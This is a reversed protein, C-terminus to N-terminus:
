SSAYSHSSYQIVTMKMGDNAWPSLDLCKSGEMKLIQSCRKRENRTGPPYPTTLSDRPSDPFRFAQPQVAMTDENNSTSCIYTAMSTAQISEIQAPTLVPVPPKNPDFVNVNPNLYFFRDGDRFHIMQLAIIYTFTPGLQGGDRKDSPLATELAREALGGVWIDVRAFTNFGYIKFLLYFDNPVMLPYPIPLGKSKLFNLAQSLMVLYGPLGHDRGRQINLSALDFGPGSPKGEKDVQEFLHNNLEESIFRDIQQSNRALLGRFYNDYSADEEYTSFYRAPQFFGQRFDIESLLKYNEDLRALQNRLQSHGMRFAAHSFENFAGPNVTPDYGEYPKVIAKFISGGLLNPLYEAFTIHQNVSAVIRRTEYFLRDPGWSPNLKTLIRVIRNHERVWLTHMFSLFPQESARVDGAQLCMYLRGMCCENRLNPIELPLAEKGEGDKITKLLAGQGGSIKVRLQEQRNQDSGYVNSSDIFSTLENFQERTHFANLKNDPASRTLPIFDRGFTGGQGFQPDDLPVEINFCNISSKGKALEDCDAMSVTPSLTVDHDLYQGWQMLLYSHDDDNKAKDGHFATSISRANPLSRGGRTQVPDGIKCRYKKEGKFMDEYDPRALRELPALHAGWEPHDVNNCRGDQSRFEIGDITYTNRVIKCSDLQREVAKPSSYFMDFIEEVMGEEENDAKMKEVMANVASKVKEVVKMGDDCKMKGDASLPHFKEAIYAAKMDKCHDPIVHDKADVYKKVETISTMDNVPSMGIHASPSFFFCVITPMYVVDRRM